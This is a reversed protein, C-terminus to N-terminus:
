LSFPFCVFVMSLSALLFLLLLDLITFFLNILFLKDTCCFLCCCSQVSKFVVCIRFWDSPLLFLLFSQTIQYVFVLYSQVM